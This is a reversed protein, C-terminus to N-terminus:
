KVLMWQPTIGFIFAIAYIQFWLEATLVKVIVHYPNGGGVHTHTTPCSDKM